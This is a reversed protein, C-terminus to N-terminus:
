IDLARLDVGHRGGSYARATMDLTAPRVDMHDLPVGSRRGDTREVELRAGRGFGGRATSVRKVEAWPVGVGALEVGYRDIRLAIGTGVARLAKRARLYALLYVGLWVLSGVILTGYVVLIGTDQLTHGRWRYLAALIACSIVFTLVQGLLLRRWRRVKLQASTPDFPVSLEEVPLITV